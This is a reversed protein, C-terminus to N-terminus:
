RKERLRALERNDVWEDDSDNFGDWHVLTRNGSVRIPTYPYYENKDDALKLEDERHSGKLAEGKRNELYYLNM